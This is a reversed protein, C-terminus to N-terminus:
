YMLILTTKRWYNNIWIQFLYRLSFAFYQNKQNAYKWDCNRFKEESTYINASNIRGAYGKGLRSHRLCYYHQGICSCGRSVCEPSGMGIITLITSKCYGRSYRQYTSAYIIYLSVTCMNVTIDDWSSLEPCETWIQGM